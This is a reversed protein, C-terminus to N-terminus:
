QPPASRKGGEQSTHEFENQEFQATALQIQRNYMEVLEDVDTARLLGTDYTFTLWTQGQHTAGNIALNQRPHLLGVCEIRDVHTFAESTGGWRDVHSFVGTAM